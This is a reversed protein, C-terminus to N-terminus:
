WQWWSSMINEHCKFGDKWNYKLSLRSVWRSVLLSPFYLFYFRSLLKHHEDVVSWSVVGAELGNAAIIILINPVDNRDGNQITFASSAALTLASELNSNQRFSSPPPLNSITNMLGNKDNFFQNFNIILQATSWYQILSIKTLSLDLAGIFRTLFNKYNNWDSASVYGDIAFAIDFMQLQINDM